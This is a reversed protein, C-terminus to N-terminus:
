NAALVEELMKLAKDRESMASGKLTWQVADMLADQMRGLMEPAYEGATSQEASLDEWGLRRLHYIRGNEDSLRQIEQAFPRRVADYM